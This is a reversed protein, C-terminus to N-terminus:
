VYDFARYQHLKYGYARGITSYVILRGQIQINGELTVEVKQATGNKIKDFAKQIEKRTSSSGFTQRFVGKELTGTDGTVGQDPGSNDTDGEEMGDPETDDVETDDLATASLGIDEAEKMVETGQSACAANGSMGSIGVTFAVALALIKGRM